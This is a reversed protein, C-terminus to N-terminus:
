QKLFNGEFTQSNANIIHVRYWGSALQHVSINQLDIASQVLKQMVLGGKSNFIQMVGNSFFPLLINITTKAPNPYVIAINGNVNISVVNSYSVKGNKEVVKIRFYTINSLVGNVSIEYNNVSGNKASVATLFQYSSANVSSEIEYHDINKENVTSWKFTISNQLYNASFQQIQIPLTTISAGIFFTGFSATEFEIFYDNQYTGFNGFATPQIVTFAGNLNNSCANNLLLIQLDNISQISADANKLALFESQTFYIRVKVTGNIVSQPTLTVNRNLYPKQSFYRLTNTTFYSANITGYAGDDKISAFANLTDTSILISNTTDTAHLWNSTRTAVLAKSQVCTNIVGNAVISDGNLYNELHTYGNAHYGNRDSANNPNLGRATEWRDPMGDGDSDALATLSILTPWANMTTNFDTLRPFGGQVDIIAGTRNIVNNIIRQDLTDRKPLIVGVNNLVSQYANVATQINLPSNPLSFPQLMKSALTDNNSGGSMVVTNLWSTNANTVGDIYNGSFFYRGYPLSSSKFPVLVISRRNTPTSPGFKYYNNILNYNGGEGGTTQYDGWNYVVNNVFEANELGTTSGNGLNRSGDFRPTRSKAHAFLNHHFSAKSGGWIGGYGHEQVGTGEDHYSRNLPESLLCWQVTVNNGKYIDFLCDNSWSMTCHDIIVDSRDTGTIADDNGLRALQYRDGLRFRLYRIIINNANIIVPYDAICIGDGPATQGAITTNARSLRLESTLRITGSVKFIVTRHTAVPSNNTVAYRLTGVSGDDTLKTVEFITTPTTPTGRGGTVFAGAGEAGPFALQQANVCNILFFLVLSFYLKVM